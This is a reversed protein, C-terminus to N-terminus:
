RGGAIDQAAVVQSASSTERDAKITESSPNQLRAPFSIGSSTSLAAYSAALSDSVGVDVSCRLGVIVLLGSYESFGSFGFVVSVPSSSTVSVKVEVITCVVVSLL